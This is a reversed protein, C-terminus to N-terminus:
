FNFKVTYIAANLNSKSGLKNDAYRYQVGTTFRPSVNWWIAAAGNMGNGSEGAKALYTEDRAFTYENWNSLTFKEGGVQFDYMATWGFMGGNMGHWAGNFDTDHASYVAGLFPRVSWNDGKIGTYTAGLVHDRVNFGDSIAAYTHHYVAVNDIATNVTIVAKTSIQVDSVKEYDGFNEFDAFGYVDGWDYGAGGELEIYDFDKLHGAKETSTGSWDLKNISVNGFTYNPAAIAASGFVTLGILAATVFKKM